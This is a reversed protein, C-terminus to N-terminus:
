MVGCYLLGTHELWEMVISCVEDKKEKDTQTRYSVSYDGVKESVFGSTKAQKEQIRLLEAVECVCMQVEEIIEKEEDINGHTLNRVINCAKREWFPFSAADLVAERGSLYKETYFTYDTM